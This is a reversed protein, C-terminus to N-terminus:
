SLLLQVEEATIGLRELIANKATALNAAAEAEAQKLSESAIAEEETQILERNNWEADTLEVAGEPLETITDDNAWLIAIGKADYIVYKM